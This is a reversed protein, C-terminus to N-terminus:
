SGRFEAEPSKQCLSDILALLSVSKVVRVIQLIEPLFQERPVHQQYFAVISDAVPDFDVTRVGPAMAREKHAILRPRDRSRWRLDNFIIGTQHFRNHPPTYNQATQRLVFTAIKANATGAVQRAHLTFGHDAPRNALDAHGVVQFVNQLEHAHREFVLFHRGRMPNALDATALEGTGAQQCGSEALHAQIDQMVVIPCSLFNHGIVIGLNLGLVEIQAGAEIDDVGLMGRIAFEAPKKASRQVALLSSSVGDNDSVAACTRSFM